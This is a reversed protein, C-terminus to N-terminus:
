FVFLLSLCTSRLFPRSWVGVFHYLFPSAWFVSLCIDKFYLVLYYLWVFLCVPQHVYRCPTFSMELPHSQSAVTLMLNRQFFFLPHWLNKKWFKMSNAPVWVHVNVACNGVLGSVFYRLQTCRCRDWASALPIVALSRKQGGFCASWVFPSGALVHEDVGNRGYLVPSLDCILFFFGSAVTWGTWATSAAGRHGKGEGWVVGRKM